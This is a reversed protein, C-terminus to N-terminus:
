VARSTPAPRGSRSAASTVSTPESVSSGSIVRASRSSSRLASPQHRTLTAPLVRIERPRGLAVHWIRQPGDAPDDPVKRIDVIRAVPEPAAVAPTM